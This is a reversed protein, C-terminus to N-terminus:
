YLYDFDLEFANKILRIKPQGKVPYSISVVDFRAPSGLLRNQKLFMLAAKAIRRQKVDGVAEVPQGFSDTARAKVEVFCITDKEKAIIDVQGLRTRFDTNIIKYGNNGLFQAAIREGSRGLEIALKGM